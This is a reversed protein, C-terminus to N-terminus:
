SGLFGLLLSRWTEAQELQPLHGTELLVLQADRMRPLWSAALDAVHGIRDRDGEKAWARGPAARDRNGVVLLTPGALKPLDELVPQDRIAQGAAVRADVWRPYEASQKLRERLSVM